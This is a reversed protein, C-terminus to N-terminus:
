RLYIGLEKHKHTDVNDSGSSGPFGSKGFFESSMVVNGDNVQIFKLPFRSPHFILFISIKLILCYRLIGPNYFSATNRYKFGHFITHVYDYNQIIRWHSVNDTYSFSIQLFLKESFFSHPPISFIVIFESGTKKKISEPPTSSLKRPYSRIYLFTRQFRFNRLYSSYFIYKFCNNQFNAFIDM